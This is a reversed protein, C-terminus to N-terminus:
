SLIGIPNSSHLTLRSIQCSTEGKKSNLTVLEKESVTFM